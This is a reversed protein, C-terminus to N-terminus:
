RMDVRLDMSKVINDLREATDCSVKAQVMVHKVRSKDRM